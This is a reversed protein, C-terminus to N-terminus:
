GSCFVPFCCVPSPVDRAGPFMDPQYELKAVADKGLKPLSTKLPNPLVAARVPWLATRALYLLSTTLVVTTTTLVLASPTEPVNEFLRRFVEM